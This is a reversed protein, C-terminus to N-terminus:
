LPEGTVKQLMVLLRGYAIAQETRPVRQGSEWRNVASMTTGIAAAVEAQSLMAMLRIERARGNKIWRRVKVVLELEDLTMTDANM